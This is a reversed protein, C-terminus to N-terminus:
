MEQAVAPKVGLHHLRHILQAHRVRYAHDAVKAPRKCWLTDNFRGAGHALCGGHSITHQDTPGTHAGKSQNLIQFSFEADRDNARISCHDPTKRPRHANIKTVSAKAPHRM